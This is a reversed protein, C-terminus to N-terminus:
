EEYEREGAWIRWVPKGPRAVPTGILTSSQQRGGIASGKDWPARLVLTVTGVEQALVLRQAEEIAVALTVHQMKEEQGGVMNEAIGGPRSAAQGGRASSLSRNVALVKVDSLLTTTVSENGVSFTGLVDVRNGPVLLGGVGTVDTIAVSVAKKGEPIFVALGLEAESNVIKSGVIQEGKAFAGGTMRGKAEEVRTYVGPQTFSAPVDEVTVMSEDIMTREPIDRAAVLVAKAGGWKAFYSREAVNVYLMVLGAILLAMLLSFVTTRNLKM